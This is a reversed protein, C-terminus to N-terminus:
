YSKVFPRVHVDTVEVNEPTLIISQVMDAIDQPQILLEKKYLNNNKEYMKEIRPTAVRGLYLSTTRVRNQNNEDRLADTLAKLAHNTASFAGGGAKPNFATSSNIVILQSFERNRYNLFSSFLTYSGLVNVNMLESIRQSKVDGINGLQFQSGCHILIDVEGFRKHVEDMFSNISSRKGLDLYDAYLSQDEPKEAFIKRLKEPRRSGVCLNIESNRLTKAISKGIGQSAGTVIVSKGKLFTGKKNVM